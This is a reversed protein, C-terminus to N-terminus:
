FWGEEDFPNLDWKTPNIADLALQAAAGIAEKTEKISRKVKPSLRIAYNGASGVYSYKKNVMDFTLSYSPTTTTLISIKGLPYFITQNKVTTSSLYAPVYKLIRNPIPTELYLRAIMNINFTIPKVAAEVVANKISFEISAAADIVPGGQIGGEISIDGVLPIDFGISIGVKALADGSLGATAYAGLGRREATAKLKFEAKVGLVLNVCGWWPGLKLERNGTSLLTGTWPSHVRLFGDIVPGVVKEVEEEAVRILMMLLKRKFNKVIKKFEKHQAVQHVLEKLIDKISRGLLGSKLTAIAADKGIKKLIELGKQSVLFQIEKKILHGTEKWLRKTLNVALKATWHMGAKKKTEQLAKPILVKAEENMDVRIKLQIEVDFLEILKELLAELQGEVIEVAGDNLVELLGDWDGELSEDVVDKLVAAIKENKVHKDILEDAREEVKGKVLDVIEEPRGEKVREIVDKVTSAIEKDKIKEDIIEDLEEEALDKIKDLAEERKGKIVDEIIERNQGLVNSGVLDTVSTAEELKDEIEKIKDDFGKAKKQLFKIIKKTFVTEPPMNDMVEQKLKKFKDLEKQLKNIAAKKDSM